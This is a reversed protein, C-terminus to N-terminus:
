LTQDDHITAFICDRAIQTVVFIVEGGMVSAIFLDGRKTPLPGIVDRAFFKTEINMDFVKKMANHSSQCECKEIINDVFYHLIIQM